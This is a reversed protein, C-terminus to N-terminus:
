CTARVFLWHAVNLFLMVDVKNQQMKEKKNEANSDEMIVVEPPAVADPRVPQSAHIYSM